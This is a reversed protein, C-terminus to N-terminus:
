DKMKRYQECHHKIKKVKEPSQDVLSIRVSDGGAYTSSTVKASVAISKCFDRCLKAVHAWQSLERKKVATM